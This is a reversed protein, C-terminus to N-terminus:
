RKITLEGVTITTKVQNNQSKQSVKTIRTSFKLNYDNLLVTVIDGLDYDVGFGKTFPEFSCNWTQNQKQLEEIGKSRLREKYESIYEGTEQKINDADVFLVYKQNGNSIDVDVRTRDTGEGEGLVIAYNKYAEVSLNISEISVNGYKESFVLNTKEEPKYFQLEIKGNNRVVRFGLDANQCLDKCFGLITDNSKEIGSNVMVSSQPIEFSPYKETSEYASKISSPIDSGTLIEGIYVVDDLVRSAQKGTAQITNGAIEVTKVVMLTKRDTRGFYCNPRVKKRFEDTNQLEVVFSEVTNYGESWLCSIYNNDIIAIRNLSEDYLNLKM